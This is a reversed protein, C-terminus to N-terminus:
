AIKKIILSANKITPVQTAVANIFPVSGVTIITNAGNCVRILRSTAVNTYEDTTAITEDMDTGTLPVNNSFIALGVIGSTASTINGSYLIEYIGGKIIQFQSSGEDHQLWGCCNASGTRVVDNAFTIESTNSTLTLASEQVSNIM